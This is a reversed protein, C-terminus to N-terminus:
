THSIIKSVKLKFKKGTNKVFKSIMEESDWFDAM